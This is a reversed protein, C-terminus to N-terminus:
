NAARIELLRENAISDAMSLGVQETANVTELTLSRKEGGEFKEPEQIGGTASFNLKFSAIMKNIPKVAAIVSGTVSTATGGCQFSLFQEGAAPHIWWGVAPPSVSGDILGFEAVLSSSVIEGPQAGEGTCQGGFPGAVSCGSFSIGLTASQPGTYEGAVTNEACNITTKTVATKLTAAGNSLAFHPKTFPWPQWEYKGTGPSSAKTVCGSDTYNGGTTAVCRGIEPKTAVAQNYTIRIEPQASSSAVASSGGAPTLSSGGGGGAGGFSFGAGGGGGGYYGGGGGGGVLNFECNGGAGGIALEGSAGFECGGFGGSGGSGATGAGGGENNPISEGPAEAAGGAGAGESGTSGGGGGGAAIILRTDPFLGESRPVTRVDSAGGGGGAGDGGGNFGGPSVISGSGGEGGVEVYLTQGPKVSLNGQVEAGSGGSAGAKGGQGGIALVHITSVGSPVTFTQESGTYSFIQTTAAASTAGLL